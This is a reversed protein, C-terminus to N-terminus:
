RAAQLYAYASRACRLAGHRLMLGAYRLTTILPSLMIISFLPSFLIAAAADAFAADVFYSSTIYGSTMM